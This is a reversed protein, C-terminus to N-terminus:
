NYILKNNKKHTKNHSHSKNKKKNNKELFLKIKEKKSIINDVIHRYFPRFENRRNEMDEITFWDLGIKEFLKTKSLDKNEM